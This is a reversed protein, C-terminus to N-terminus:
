EKPVSPENKIWGVSTRVRKDDEETFYFPFSTTSSKNGDYKIRIRCSITKGPHLINTEENDYCELLYMQSENPGVFVPLPPIQEEFDQQTTQFAGEAKDSKRLEVRRGFEIEKTGSSTDFFIHVSTVMGPKSGYNSLLLPIYVIYNLKRGVKWLGYHVIPLPKIKAGQQSIFWNYLSLFLAGLGPFVAILITVPDNLINAQM